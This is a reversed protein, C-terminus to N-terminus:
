GGTYTKDYEEIPIDISVITGIDKGTDIHYTGNLLDVRRELNTLGLGESQSKEKFGSGNDEVTVTLESDHRTVQVIIENAGSHKLANSVLEQIMRYIHLQVDRSMGKNLGTTIVKMKVRGSGSITERLDILAHELGYQALVGSA